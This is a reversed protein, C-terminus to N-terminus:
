ALVPTSAIAAVSSINTIVGREQARMVPLVHKCTFMVSKLNTNHIRDWVEETMSTPGRDGAGIGVNNHLVDIRGYRRVWDAVLAAVDAERTADACLADAEGDEDHIQEM